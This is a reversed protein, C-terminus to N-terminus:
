WKGILRNAASIIDWVHTGGLHVWMSLGLIRSVTVEAETFTSVQGTTSLGGEGGGGRHVVRHRGSEREPGVGAAEGERVVAVARNVDPEPELGPSDLLIM